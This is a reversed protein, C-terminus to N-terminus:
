LADSHSPGFVSSVSASVRGHKFMLVGVNKTVERVEPRAADPVTNLDFHPVVGFTSGTRKDSRYWPRELTAECYYRIFGVTGSRPTAQLVSFQCLGEFAPPLETPLTFCFPFTYRGAHLKGDEAARWLEM